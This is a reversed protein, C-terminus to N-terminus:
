RLECAPTVQGAFPRWTQTRGLLPIGLFGRLRLNGAGDLWLQAGYTTGTRPDTVEGLWTGDTAPREKSIITLGCQSAGHVDTPLPEGPARLIGVIRGCLAEGCREIAIVGHGDQTMWAGLLRDPLPAAASAARTAATVSIAFAVGLLLAGCARALSSLHTHM